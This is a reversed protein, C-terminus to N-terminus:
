LRPSSRVARDASRVDDRYPNDAVVGPSVREQVLASASDLQYRHNFIRRAATAATEKIPPGQFPVVAQTPTHTRLYLMIIKSKSEGSLDSWALGESPVDAGAARIWHERAAVDLHAWTSTIQRRLTTHPNIRPTSDAVDSVVHAEGRALRRDVDTTATGHATVLPVGHRDILRRAVRTELVRAVQAEEGRTVSTLPQQSGTVHEVHDQYCRLYWHRAVQVRLQVGDFRDDPAHHIARRAGVARLTDFIDSAATAADSVATDRIVAVARLTSIGSITPRMKRLQKTTDEVQQADIVEAPQSLNTRLTNLYVHFYWDRVLRGAPNYRIEGSRPDIRSTKTIKRSQERGAEVAHRRLKNLDAQSDSSAQDRTARAVTEAIAADM